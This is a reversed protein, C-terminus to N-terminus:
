LYNPKNLSFPSPPPVAYGVAGQVSSRYRLKCLSWKWPTRQEGGGGCNPDIIGQEMMNHTSVIGWGAPCRPEPWACGGKFEPHGCGDFMLPQRSDGTYNGIRMLCYDKTMYYGGNNSANYPPSLSAVTRTTIYAATPKGVQIPLGSALHGVCCAMVLGFFNFSVTM